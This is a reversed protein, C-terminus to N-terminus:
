GHTFVQGVGASPAPMPAQVQAPAEAETGDDDHAAPMAEALRQLTEAEDALGDLLGLSPSETDYLDRIRASLSHAVDARRELNEAEAALADLLSKRPSTGYLARIRASLAHTAHDDTTM